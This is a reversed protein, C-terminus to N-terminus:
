PSAQPNAHPNAQPDAQPSPAPAPTQALMPYRALLQRKANLLAPLQPHSRSLFGRAAQLDEAMRAQLILYMWVALLALPLLAMAALYGSAWALWGLGMAWLPLLLLGLLVKMSAVVDVESTLRAALWGILRYPPWFLLAFPLCLTWCVLRFVAMPLWRAAELMGYPHDIQDARLGQRKLEHAMTSVANRLDAQEPETVTTLFADFARVRARVLDLKTSAESGDALLWALDRALALREANSGHLTLPLIAARIRETLIHASDPDESALDAYAIPEGLRLLASHRFVDRAAYVLGAPVIAPRVPAGLAMRAAGTKLAAMDHRAHSIGEPFIGVVDGARFTAHVAGFAHELSAKRAQDDAQPDMDQLRAVPIARFLALFPRLGAVKWLAAKGVFRPPRALLATVVVPDLLGNPHNLVLLVPGAPLPAGATRLQRFWIKAILTAFPKLM